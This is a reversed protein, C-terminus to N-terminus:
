QQQQSEKFANLVKQNIKVKYRARMDAIWQQELHNQYDTTVLGREDAVEEPQDIVKGGWAFCATWRGVPASPEGGFALADIIPNEGKAALVREVKIDKGYLERLTDVLNAAEVTHSALYKQAENKISDNTAFVIYGKFKPAQWTAYREKNENFYNNIGEVDEKSRNWVNRESIEFLLMGDRYENLLNRYDANENALNNREANLVAEDTAEEIRTELLASAADVDLTEFGPNLVSFIDAVVVGANKGSLKVITRNDAAFDAVLTSDLGNNEVIAKKVKDAVGDNIKVKYKARLQDIKVQRPVYQRADRDIMSNILPKVEEFEDVEKWELRKVIHWGYPTEFPQSIEGDALAFSVKEFQPVMQGCGFFNINGGNRASGPDQSEKKALEDFNAGNILLQYISDMEAKRQAKGEEPMDITLKLIHQVRVKGITHRKEHVKVIHYGFPTEIVPSIDGVATAFAADEFAIPFRNAQIFGMHGHNHKVAADISISDAVQEFVKNGAIIDSRLADLSAIAKAKEADTKPIAIMIHSVDIETKLREYALNVLSDRASEDTLYPEALDSRYGAFENIFTEEKDIGANEADAVKLKYIVFLELYEDVPQVALQQTNNKNYLYEFESLKVEKNNVTMLVPDKDKASLSIAAVATIAVILSLFTRKM